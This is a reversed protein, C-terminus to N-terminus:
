HGSILQGDGNDAYVNTPHGGGRSYNRQSLDPADIPNETDAPIM